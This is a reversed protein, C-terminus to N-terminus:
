ALLAERIWLPKPNVYDTYVVYLERIGKRTRRKIVNINLFDPAKVHVLVSHYFNGTIEEGDLSVIEYTIPIHHNNIKNIKFIEKTTRRKYGKLFSSHIPSASVLRVCSGVTLVTRLKKCMHRKYKYYEKGM